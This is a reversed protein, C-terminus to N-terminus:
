RITLPNEHPTRRILIAVLSGALMLLVISVSIDPYSKLFRFFDLGAPIIHALSLLAEIAEIM